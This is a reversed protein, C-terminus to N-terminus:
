KETLFATKTEDVFTIIYENKDVSFINIKEKDRYFTYGHMIAYDYHNQYEKEQRDAAWQKYPIFFFTCIIGVNVIVELILICLTELFGQPKFIDKILFIDIVISLIIGFILPFVLWTTIAAQFTTPFMEQYM